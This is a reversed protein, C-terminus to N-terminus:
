TPTFIFAIKVLILQNSVAILTSVMGYLATKCSCLPRILLLECIETLMHIQRAYLHLFPLFTTVETLM